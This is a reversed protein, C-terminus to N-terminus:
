LFYINKFVTTIFICNSTKLYKIKEAPASIKKKEGCRESRSQPGGMRRGGHIDPVKVRTYLPPHTFSVV